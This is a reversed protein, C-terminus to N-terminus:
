RNLHLPLCGSIVHYIQQTASKLSSKLCVLFQLHGGEQCTLGEASLETGVAEEWPHRHLSCHGLLTLADGVPCYLCLQCTDVRYRPSCFPQMRSHLGCVAM